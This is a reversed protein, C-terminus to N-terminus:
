LGIKCREVENTRVSSQTLSRLINNTLVKRTLKVNNCLLNHMARSGQNPDELHLSINRLHAFTGCFMILIITIVKM